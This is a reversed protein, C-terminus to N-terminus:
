TKNQLRIDMHLQSNFQPMVQGSVNMIFPKSEQNKRKNRENKINLDLFSTYAVGYM